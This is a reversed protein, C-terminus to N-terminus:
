AKDYHQRPIKRPNLILFGERIRPTPTILLKGNILTLERCRRQPSDPNIKVVRARIFESLTVVM